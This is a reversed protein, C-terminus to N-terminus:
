SPSGVARELAVRSTRGDVAPGPQAAVGGQPPEASAAEVVPPLVLVPVTTRTILGPIVSGSLLRMVANHGSSSVVILGCDHARAADLLNDVDSTGTGIDSTAHVGAQAAVAVASALRRKADDIAQHMFEEPSLTVSLALEPTTMPYAPLVTSFVIDAGSRHAFAVAEEVAHRSRSDTDVFVLIRPYM